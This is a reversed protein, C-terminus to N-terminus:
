EARMSKPNWVTAPADSEALALKKPGQRREYVPAMAQQWNSAAQARDKASMEVQVLKEAAAFDAASVAPGVPPATGFVTPAGPQQQPPSATTQQSLAHVDIGAAAAGAAIMMSGKRLFERRVM